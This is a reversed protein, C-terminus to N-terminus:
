VLLAQDHASTLSIDNQASVTDLLTLRGNLVNSPELADAPKMLAVDQLPDTPRFPEMLESLPLVLMTRSSVATRNARATNARMHMGSACALAVCLFATAM